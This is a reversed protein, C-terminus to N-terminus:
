LQLTKAICSSAYNIECDALHSKDQLVIPLLCSISHCFQILLKKSFDAEIVDSVEPALDSPITEHKSEEETAPKSRSKESTDEEKANWLFGGGKAETKRMDNKGEVVDNEVTTKDMSERVDDGSEGKVKDKETEEKKWFRFFDRKGHWSKNKCDCCVHKEVEGM